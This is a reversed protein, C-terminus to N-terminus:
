SKGPNGVLWLFACERSSTRFDPDSTQVIQHHQQVNNSFYFPVVASYSAYPPPLAFAVVYSGTSGVSSGVTLSIGIVPSQRRLSSWLM